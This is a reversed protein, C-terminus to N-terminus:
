KNESTYIGNYGFVQWQDCTNEETYEVDILFFLDAPTIVPLTPLSLAPYDQSCKVVIM